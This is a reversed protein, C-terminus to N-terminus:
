EEQMREIEKLVSDIEQSLEENRKKLEQNERQIESAGKGAWPKEKLKQIEELHQKEKESSEIYNELLDKVFGKQESVIKRLEDKDLEKLNLNNLSTWLVAMKELEQERQSLLAEKQELTKTRSDIEIQIKEVLVSTQELAELKQDIEKDSLTGGVRGQNTGGEQRQEDVPQKFEAVDKLTPKYKLYPEVFKQNKFNIKKAQNRIVKM